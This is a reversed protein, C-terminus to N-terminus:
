GRSRCGARFEVRCLLCARLGSAVRAHELVLTAEAEHEILITQRHDVWRPCGQRGIIQVGAVDLPLHRQTVHRLKGCLADGAGAGM